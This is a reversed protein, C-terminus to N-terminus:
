LARWFAAARQTYRVQRLALKHLEARLQTTNERHLVQEQDLMNAVANIRHAIWAERMAHALGVPGGQVLAKILKM